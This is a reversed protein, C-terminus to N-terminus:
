PNGGGPEESASNGSVSRLAHANAAEGCGKWEMVPVNGQFGLDRHGLESSFFGAATLDRFRNFFAVGQSLRAPAKKPWAIDDLIKGRQAATAGAFVVGYRRRSEADLWALGGRMAVRRSEAGDSTMFDIFEPVRAQSASGSKADAPVVMDALVRVTAYEHPTFFRPKYPGQQEAELGAVRSAAQAVEPDAWALAGAAGAPSLPTLPAVVPVLPVVGLLKLADRRNIESM